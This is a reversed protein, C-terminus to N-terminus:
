EEGTLGDWLSLVSTYRYKLLSPYTQSKSILTGGCLSESEKVANNLATSLTALSGTPSPFLTNFDDVTNKLTSHANNVALRASIENYVHTDLSISVDYIALYFDYFSNLAKDLVKKEEQSFTGNVKFSPFNVIIIESDLGQNTKISNKVLVADNKNYYVSSVLYFYENQKWVYGGAGIKQYDEAQVKVENEVQSKSLTLFYLETANSAFSESNNSVPVLLLSLYNAVILCFIMFIIVAFSIVSKKSKLLNKFNNKHM